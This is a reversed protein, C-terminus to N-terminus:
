LIPHRNYSCIPTTRTFKQALFIRVWHRNFTYAIPELHKCCPVSGISDLSYIIPLSSSVGWQATTVQSITNVHLWRQGLYFPIHSSNKFITFFCSHFSSSRPFINYFIIALFLNCSFHKSSKLINLLYKGILFTTTSYNQLNTASNTEIQTLRFSFCVMKRVTGGSHHPKCSFFCFFDRFM